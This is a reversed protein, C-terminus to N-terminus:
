IAHRSVLSTAEQKPQGQAAPTAPVRPHGSGNAVAPALKALLKQRGDLWELQDIADAEAPFDEVAEAPLEGKIADVRTKTLAEYRDVKGALTDRESKFGDREQELSAKVGEFNGKEIEAQRAAEAQRDQEAQAAAQEAVTKGESRAKGILRNIEKQQADTFTVADSEGTSPPTATTSTTTTADTTATNGATNGSDAEFFIRGYAPKRLM